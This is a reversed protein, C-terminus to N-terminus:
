AAAEEDGRLVAEVYARDVWLEERPEAAFRAAPPENHGSEIDREQRGVTAIEPATFINATVRHKELPIVAIEDLSRGLFSGKKSSVGVVRFHMGEIKIVKDLPDEQGFLREATQYGIIAVPRSRNVEIPSMMRAPARSLVQRGM